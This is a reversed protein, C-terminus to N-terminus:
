SKEILKLYQMATKEWTFSKTAARLRTRVKARLNHNRRIQIMKKTIQTEKNPDVYLGFKGAVERFPGDRSAIVPCGCSAAELYHMGFGEYLSPGVLCIANRYLEILRDNSVFGEQEILSITKKNLRLASLLGIKKSKAGVIKLRLPREESKTYDEFAKLVNVLNKSKKNTGVFLFFKESCSETPNFIKRNVGPYAVVIKEPELGYKTILSEKTLKSVTVVINARHLSRRTQIIIKRSNPYYSPHLEFGIDHVVLINYPANAVPVHQSFGIFADFDSFFIGLPLSLRSWGVKPRFVMNSFNKGLRELFKSNIKNFSCLYYDYPKNLKSFAQVVNMTYNHVGTKHTLSSIAISGADIGINKM